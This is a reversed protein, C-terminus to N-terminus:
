AGGTAEQNWVYFAPNNAIPQQNATTNTSTNTKTIVESLGIFGKKLVNIQDASEKEQQKRLREAAENLARLELEAKRSNQQETVLQTEQRQLAELQGMLQVMTFSQEKMINLTSYTADLTSLQKEADTKQGELGMISMDLLRQVYNFDASYGAGSANMVRSSSLLNDLVSPLKSAATADGQSAARAVNAAESKALAYKEAPSLNSNAGSSLSSRYGVLNNISGKITEITSKIAAAESEYAATIKSKLSLEQERLDALKEEITALKETEEYVAAFAPALSMLTAYTKKGATTSLDLGQVINKFEDRTDVSSLGLKALEKVLNAQVPALREAETLFNEAYFSTQENFKDIGGMIESLQLAFEATTTKGLKVTKNISELGALVNETTYTARVLFDLSSEGIKQYKQSITLFGPITKAITKDLETGVKAELAKQIEEASLGKTSISLNFAVKSLADTIKAGSSGFIEAGAILADSMSAFVGEINRKLEESLQTRTTKSKNSYNFGLVSKSKNVTEFSEAKTVGGLISGIINLGAKSVSTSSGLLGFIKSSASETTSSGILGSRALGATFAGINDRISLLADYMKGRSHRLLEYNNKNLTDIGDILATSQKTSGGLVGGNAGTVNGMSPISASSGGSSGGLSSMLGLFAAAGAFGAWGGQEFLKGVGAAIVKPLSVLTQALQQAQLAMSMAATVREVASLAKYAATKESFMEKSAGSIESIGNIQDVTYRSELKILSEKNKKEDKMLEAKSKAYKKENESLKAAISLSAGIAKGVSGFAVAMTETLMVMDQMLTRQREVETSAQKQLEIGAVMMVNRSTLVEVQRVYEATIQQQTLKGENQMVEVALQAQRLGEALIIEERKLDISAQRDIIIDAELLAQSSLFNLQNQNSDQRLQALETEAASQRSLNELELGKQERVLELQKQQEERTSKITRLKAEAINASLEAQAAEIVSAAGKSTSVEKAYKLTAEEIKLAEIKNALDISFTNSSEQEIELLRTKASNLRLQTDLSEKLAEAAVEAVTKGGTKAKTADIARQGAGRVETSSLGGAAKNTATQAAEADALNLAALDGKSGFFAKINAWGRNAMKSLTELAGSWTLTTKKAEEMQFKLVAVRDASADMADALKLMSEPSKLAEYELTAKTLSETSSAVDDISASMLAGYKTGNELLFNFIKFAGVVALVVSLVVGMSVAVATIARSAGLAGSQVKGYGMALGNLMAASKAIIPNGSAAAFNQLAGTAKQFKMAGTEAAKSVSALAASGKVGTSKLGDLENKLKKVKTISQDVSGKDTVKFETVTAM